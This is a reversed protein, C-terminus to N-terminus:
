ATGATWSIEDVWLGPVLDDGAAATEPFDFVAVMLQMPYSPPRPCRRIEEGDVLFVAEDASWRVAYSHWTEVDLPRRVVAFDEPVSPDRFRHLGVGVGAGEGPVVASGFV